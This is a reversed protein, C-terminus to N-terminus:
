SLLRLELELEIGQKQKVVSQVLRILKLIDEASANADNIIFNAHKSSIHAGGVRFGKLASDEILKAAYGNEPNKFVSGCNFTGIPQLSNRLKLLEKIRFSNDGSELEFEGSLIWSHEPLKVNRYGIILDHATLSFLEGKKNILNIRKVFQWIESGFAGANMALAGGITGPIGALFELGQLKHEVCFKAVKAAPSGALARFTNQNLLEIGSLSPSTLIVVGKVGADPVLVNSGLGLFTVPLNAPLHKLYTALTAISSPQFVREAEGGVKWTTLNKLSVNQQEIDLVKKVLAVM